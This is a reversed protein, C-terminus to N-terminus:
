PDNRRTTCLRDFCADADKFSTTIRRVGGNGRDEREIDRVM